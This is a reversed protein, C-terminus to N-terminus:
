PEQPQAEQPRAAPEPRDKSTLRRVGGVVSVNGEEDAQLRPRSDSYDFTQRTMLEGEPNYVSYSFSHAWSQYLLHLNSLRDLRPEPRSFSLVNGVPVTRYIKLGSSDTVRLYLRLQGKVYNAQQLIYKRVEPLANTEGGAAIPLGFDREWLRTGDIINFSVGRSTIDHDWGKIRVTAVISYRGPQMLTFYPALDVHKTAVKSSALVFDGVVPVDGLTSVVSGDRSEVSFTLWDEEAGLRLTQGSRNSIRVAVPLAEGPLFQDQDLALDAVVQASVPALSGAVLLLWLGIKQM